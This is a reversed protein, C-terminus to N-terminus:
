LDSLYDEDRSSDLEEEHTPSLPPPPPPTPLQIGPMVSQLNSMLLTIFENMQQIYTEMKSKLANTAQISESTSHQDRLRTTSSHSRSTGRLVRGVARRHGRREGLVKLVVDNENVSVSSSSAQQTQEEREEVMKEYDSAARENVGSAMESITSKLHKLSVRGSRPRATGSYVYAYSIFLMDFRTAVITKSGQLSTYKIKERNIKNTMSVDKFKQSSSREICKEWVETTLGRYPVATGKDRIYANVDSKYQRYRRAAIDEIGDVILKYDANSYRSPNVDFYEYVCGTARAKQEEPVNAWRDFYPHVFQRVRTGVVRSVYKQNDGTPLYTGEKTDFEIPLPRKGNSEFLKVLHLSRSPGRKTAATAIQCDAQVSNAHQHPPEDGGDGGHHLVDTM